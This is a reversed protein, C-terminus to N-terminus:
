FFSFDPGWTAMLKGREKGEEGSERLGAGVVWPWWRRGAGAEGWPSSM